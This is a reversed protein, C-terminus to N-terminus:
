HACAFYYLDHTRHNVAFEGDSVQGMQHVRKPDILGLVLVKARRFRM